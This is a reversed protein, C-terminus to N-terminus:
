RRQDIELETQRFLAAEEIEWCWCEPQEPAADPDEEKWGCASCTVLDSGFDDETWVQNGCRPCIGKEVCEPCPDYDFMQGSSLSVGAPSPDYYYGHGGQGDCKRCYSPWATEYEATVIKWRAQQAKCQDTCEVM